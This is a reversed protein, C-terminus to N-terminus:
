KYEEVNIINQQNKPLYKRTEQCWKEVREIISTVNKIVTPNNQQEVLAKSYPIPSLKTKLFEDIEYIYGSLSLASEIQAGISDKKETLSKIQNKLDKYDKSDKEYNKIQENLLEEKEKALTYQKKQYELDQKLKDISSHDTNDIIEPEKSREQELEIKLEKNNNELQKAKEELIKKDKELKKYEKFTTIDGTLVNEKLGQDVSPKAIEYTLSLPLEELLKTEELNSSDILNFRQILRYVNTTKFGLSVYWEEFCGYGDKSLRDQAEKLEKGIQTTANTMIFRMSDEKLKLFESTSTDLQSYDFQTIKTSLQKEEEM